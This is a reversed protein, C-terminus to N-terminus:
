EDISEVDPFSASLRNSNRKAISFPGGEDTPTCPPSTSNVLRWQLEENELSLRKSKASERELSNRLTDREVSLQREFRSKTEVVFSLSENEQQLKKTKAKVDELKELELHKEMKEKRLQRIEENKMELVAKLSELEAPLSEYKKIAEQIRTEIDRQNDDQLQQFKRNLSGHESLLKDYKEKMESQQEEYDAKITEIEVQHEEVLEDVASSHKSDLDAIEDQHKDKLSAVLEDHTKRMQAVQKEQEEKMEHVQSRHTEIALQIEGEHKCKLESSTEELLNEYDAKLTEIAVAHESRQYMMEEQLKVSNAEEEVLKEQIVKMEQFTSEIKRQLQNSYKQCWVLKRSTTLILLSAAVFDNSNNDIQDKLQSCLDTRHKLLESLHQAKEKVDEIAKLHSTDEVQIGVSHKILYPTESLIDPPMTRCPVELPSSALVMTTSGDNEDLNHLATDGELSFNDQQSNRSSFDRASHSFTDSHVSVTDGESDIFDDLHDQDRISSAVSVSDSANSLQGSIKKPLKSSGQKQSAPTQKSRQKVVQLPKKNSSASAPQRNVAKSPAQTKEKTSSHSRRVNSTQLKSGVTTCSGKSGQLSGPTQERISKQGGNVAVVKEKGTTKQPLATRSPKRASSDSRALGSERKVAPTVPPRSGVTNHWTQVAASDTKKELKAAAAPKSIQSPTSLKKVPLKSTKSEEKPSHEKVDGSIPRKSVTPRPVFSKPDPITALTHRKQIKVEQKHGTNPGTRNSFKGESSLNVKKNQQQRIQELRSQKQQTTKSTSNGRTPISTAKSKPAKLSSPIRKTASMKKGKGDSTGTSSLSAQSGSLSDTYNSGTDVVQDQSKITKNAAKIVSAQSLSDVCTLVLPRKVTNNPIPKVPALISLIDDDFVVDYDGSRNLTSETNIDSSSSCRRLPKKPTSTLCPWSRLQTSETDRCILSEGNVLENSDSMKRLTDSQAHPHKQQTQDKGLLKASNGTESRNENEVEPIIPRERRGLDLCATIAESFHDACDLSPCSCYRGQIFPDEKASLHSACTYESNESNSTITLHGKQIMFHTDLSVAHGVKKHLAIKEGNASINDKSPQVGNQENSSNELSSQAFLTGQLDGALNNIGDRPLDLVGTMKLPKNPDDGVSIHEKNVADFATKENWVNNELDGMDSSLYYENSDPFNEKFIKPMSRSRNVCNQEWTNRKGSKEANHLFINLGKALQKAKLFLYRDLSVSRHRRTQKVPKNIDGQKSVGCNNTRMVKVDGSSMSQESQNGKKNKKEPLQPSCPSEILNLRSLTIDDATRVKHSHVFIGHKNKCRFYRVGRVCGDNKGCAEDLVIGCWEGEAFHTRGIYKLLGLQPKKNLICVVRDGQNPRKKSM